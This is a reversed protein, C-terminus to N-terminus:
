FRIQRLKKLLKKIIILFVFNFNYNYLIKYCEYNAFLINKISSNSIGGSGMVITTKSLYYNSIKKIHLLYIMLKYDASVKYSIDYKIDKLIEKKLVLSPHNPMWGNQFLNYKYDQSKCFRIVKDTKLNRIEIDSYLCDLNSQHLKKFIDLLVNNNIFYNDSHLNIIYKGNAHEIGKNLADYIGNDKEHIITSNKIKSKKIIQLTKDKSLSDIFIVEYDYFNQSKISEITKNITLESNYSIVIISFFM